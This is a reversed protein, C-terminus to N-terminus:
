REGLKANLIRYFHSAPRRRLFRTVHPSIAITVTDQISLPRNIQGDASLIATGSSDVLELRVRAEPELVLPRDAVLHPAIATMVTDRVSPHLIPGGAALNYATSGTATAIIVGDATLTTYESDNVWVKLRIVRPEAGRVVVVDNLALFREEHGDMSITADIMARQDVWYQGDLYHPLQAELEAPELETLFGVHGFNVGLLPTGRAAYQRATSLITGDGGMVIILDSAPLEALDDHGHAVGRSWSAVGRRDLTALVREALTAAEPHDARFIVGIRNIM